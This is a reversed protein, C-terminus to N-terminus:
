GTYEWRVVVVFEGIDAPTGNTTVKLYLGEDASLIDTSPVITWSNETQETLDVGTAATLDMTDFATITGAALDGKGLILDPNNANKSIDACAVVGASLITVAAKPQWLLVTEAAAGVAHIPVVINPTAMEDVDDGDANVNGFVGILKQVLSNLSM